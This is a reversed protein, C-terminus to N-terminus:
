KTFTELLEKNNYDILFGRPSYFMKKKVIPVQKALLLAAAVIKDDDKLGIYHSQWGNGKKLNAWAETQHFTIQPHKDAFKKFEKNTLVTLKM